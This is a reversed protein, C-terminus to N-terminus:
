LNMNREGCAARLAFDPATTVPVGSSLLRRTFASTIASVPFGREMGFHSLEQPGQRWRLMRKSAVSIQSAFFSLFLLNRAIPDRLHNLVFSLAKM